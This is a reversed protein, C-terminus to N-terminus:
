DGAEAWGRVEDLYTAPPPNEMGEAAALAQRAAAAAEATEGLGAHLRAKL